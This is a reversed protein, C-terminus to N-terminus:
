KPGSSNCPDLKLLMMYSKIVSKDCEVDKNGVRIYTYTQTATVNGEVNWEIVFYQAMFFTFTKRDKLVNYMFDFTYDHWYVHYNQIYVSIYM